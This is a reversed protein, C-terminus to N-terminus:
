CDATPPGGERDSKFSAGALRRRVVLLSLAAIPVVFLTPEPVAASDSQNLNWELLDFGDTFADGNFNGEDWLLTETFRNAIWSAYDVADVVGNLDADGLAYPSTLGNQSGAIALWADRDALNIVGDGTLDFQDNAGMTVPVGAAIPGESLLGNIDALDCVRDDDFDCRIEADIRLYFVDQGGNFTAAYALSVGTNDSIMDYYDGLKAQAPYGLSQDFPDTLPTNGLWTDGADFSYAYFLESTSADLSNRTDNWIADIRGNPAVSMTGFWQYADSGLSDNNVRIPDSWTEGGDASRTFKVDLPDSGLPDVSGLVYVNGRTDTFSHDTAVAVQGLLGAPNVGGISSNGGLDLFQSSSFTPTQLPDQANTSKSFRHGASSNLNAGALYLTGDPGVDLQGWKMFPQPGGLPAEFSAGNDTSRTFSTNPVDAFQVNWHQYINGRGIGTTRDVAIWQKDGGFADTPPNSWTAGGDSSKYVDVRFDQDDILTLSSYYFNGDADYNWYRIAAFCEPTWCM